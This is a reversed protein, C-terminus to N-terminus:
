IKLAFFLDKKLAPPSGYNLGFASFFSLKCEIRVEQEPLAGRPASMLTQLEPQLMMLTGGKKKRKGRKPEPTEKNAYFNYM